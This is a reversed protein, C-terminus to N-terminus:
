VVSKRDRELAREIREADGPAVELSRTYTRYVDLCATTEILAQELRAASVDRAHRDARALRRLASGLAETEGAFLHAMAKRKTRHVVEDFDSGADTAQRYLRDLVRLGDRDALLRNVADAFEYGTTGGVPWEAPLAEDPALIKEVLVYSSPAPAQGSEGHGRGASPALNSAPPSGREGDELAERLRRLYGTPDLLGDVHDVRLGTVKGDRAWRLVLAHTADFVRPDEVRVGVLDAIDFFRRYNLERTALQWYALRYPQELLLRDLADFSAPEGPTGNLRELAADVATRMEVRHRYLSWLRHKLTQAEQRRREAAGGGETRDPLARFAAALEALAAGADEDELETASELVTAYSRPDLPMPRDFYAVHLGREDIGLRLEGRELVHGYLDGLVPRLLQSSGDDEADWDIDFFEAYPSAPGHELVDWWWPNEPSAAMHNPVIDLLLGMGHRRLEEALADLEAETGLSADVRAADAVDYGHSSGQRSQLVPSAYLDSAGLAHLYGVRERAGPM